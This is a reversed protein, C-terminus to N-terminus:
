DIKAGSLKVAAVMKTIESNIHTAFEDPKNTVPDAGINGYVQAMEPSAVAKTFESNIKAVLAPPM